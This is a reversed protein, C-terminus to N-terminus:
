AGLWDLLAAPLAPQVCIGVHGGRLSGETVPGGWAGSLGNCAAPPAIHDRSAALVLAPITANSLDVPTGDLMWGGAILANDMYCRRVYERYAEGPFDVGDTAWKEIAAWTQPFDDLHLREWLTVWKRSQSKPDLWAFSTRMLSGPFNGLGDILADVPFEPGAWTALRGSAHFDIPTAVFAARRALGPHRALAIALFTGGVCYGIADLAETDYREQAHRRVRMISRRLTGDICEALTREADHAAPRGWDLLYVPVGADRLAEIVSMGPRLDWIHWTNILPMSIFVPAHRVTAPAIHRVSAPGQRFVIEAPTEGIRARAVPDSALFAATRRTREWMSLM